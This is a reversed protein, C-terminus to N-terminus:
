ALRRLYEMEVIMVPIAQKFWALVREIDSCEEETYGLQAPNPIDLVAARQRALHEVGLQANKFSDTGALPRVSAWARRFTNPSLALERWFGPIVFNGHSRYIEDLPDAAVECPLERAMVTREGVRSQNLVLAFLINCPNAANYRNILDVFAKRDKEGNVVPDLSPFQFERVYGAACAQADTVFGKAQPGSLADSATDVCAILFRDYIALRRYITPVFPVGLISRVKEFTDALAGNAEDEAVERPGRLPTENSSHDVKETIEGHKSIRFHESIMTSWWAESIKVATLTM